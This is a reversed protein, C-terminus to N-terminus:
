ATCTVFWVACSWCHKHSQKRAKWLCTIPFNHKINYEKWRSSTRATLLSTSEFSSSSQDSIPSWLECHQLWNHYWSWSEQCFWEMGKSLHILFDALVFYCHINFTLSLCNRLERLLLGAYSRGCVSRISKSNLLLHCLSAVSFHILPWLPMRLRTDTLLRLWLRSHCKILLQNVDRDFTPRADVLKRLCALSHQHIYVCALRNFSLWSDVLQQTLTLWSTLPTNISVQGWIAKFKCM